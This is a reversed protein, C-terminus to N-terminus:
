KKAYAIFFSPSLRQLWRSEGYPNTDFCATDYSKIQKFRANQLLMSAKEMLLGEYFPLSKQINFYSYFFYFPHINGHTVIANLVNLMFHHIRRWTYNKWFGDSVILTGGPKMVRRWENLAKDPCPLTWLLNRSVIVDFTNDEFELKEADGTQFHIPLKHMRANERAHSIMNESLDLGTVIFGLRALYIAFDGRGTGIDLAYRGPSDDTLTKLISKWKHAITISKDGLFSKSRFDWYKKISRKVRDM